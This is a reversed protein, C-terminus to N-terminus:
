FALRWYLNSLVLLLFIINFRTKGLIIWRKGTKLLTWVKMHQQLLKILLDGGIGTVFTPTVACKIERDGM